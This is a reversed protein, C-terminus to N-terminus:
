IIIKRLGFIYYGDKQKLYSLIEKIKLILILYTKNNNKYINIKKCSLPYFSLPANISEIRDSITNASNNANITAFIGADLANQITETKEYTNHYKHEIALSCKTSHVFLIIMSITILIHAIAKKM